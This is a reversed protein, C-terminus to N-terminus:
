PNVSGEISPGVWTMTLLESEQSKSFASFSWFAGGVSRSEIYAPTGLKLWGKWIRNSEMNREWWALETTRMSPSETPHVRSSAVSFLM